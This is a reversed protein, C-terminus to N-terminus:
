FLSGLEEERKTVTHDKIPANANSSACQEVTPKGLTNGSLVKAGRREEM